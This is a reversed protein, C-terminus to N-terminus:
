SAPKRKPIGLHEKDTFLRDLGPSTEITYTVAEAEAEAEPRPPSIVHSLGSEREFVLSHTDFDYLYDEEADGIDTFPVTTERGDKLKIRVTMDGHDLTYDQLNNPGDQLTSDRISDPASSTTTLTSWIRPEHPVRHKFGGICRSSIAAILALGAAGTGVYFGIQGASSVEFAGFHVALTLGVMTVTAIVLATILSGSACANEQRHNHYKAEGRSLEINASSAM